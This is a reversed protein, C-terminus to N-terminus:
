SLDNRKQSQLVAQKETRNRQCGSQWENYPYQQEDVNENGHNNKGDEHAGEDPLM